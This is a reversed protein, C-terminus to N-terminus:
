NEPAILGMRIAYRTLGAIDYISLADMLDARHTEVTKPSIGLKSAILKTANGEAILQLIERQRQTLKQLSSTPGGHNSLCAEITQSSIASSLYTEGHAVTKIALELEAPTIKKLLYGSAGSQLAQMVFEQGSNMSLIVIRTDPFQHAARATAELGNLEPMMVDMLVVRPALAEIQRLAERGDAAEGAVEIDPMKELLARLGARVLDHDDALLVRIHTTM